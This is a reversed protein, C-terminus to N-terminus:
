EDNISLVQSTLQTKGGYDNLASWFVTNTKSSPVKWSLQSFPAIMGPEPIETNNLRLERLTIYYGTPNKAILRQNQYHFNIKKFAAESNETLSEPRYFLKFSSKVIIQLTNERNEHLAPLSKIHLWYLTERDEHNSPKVNIIRLKNLSLPKLKFLPPTIIFDNSRQSEKEIWSQILYTTKEEPNEMSLSLERENEKYIFRTGNIIVGAYAHFSLLLLLLVIKKM